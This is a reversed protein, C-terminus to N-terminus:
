NDKAMAGDVKGAVVAMMRVTKHNQQQTLKDLLM